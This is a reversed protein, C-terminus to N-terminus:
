KYDGNLANQYVRMHAALFIEKTFKEKVKDIGAIRWENLIDPRKIVYNLGDVLGQVDGTKALWGTKGHEIIEPVGGTAFAIAPTGCAMTEIAVTPLNDALTPFLFVDAAAYYQALLQDNYIYGTNYFNLGKFLILHSQELKGIALIFPSLNIKRLAEVALLSGKRVESLSTATLLVIFRDQPLGLISRLIKRDLPKYINTDVYNPIVIPAIKFDIVRM